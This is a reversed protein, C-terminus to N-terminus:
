AAEAYRMREETTLSPYDTYGKEDGGYFTDKDPENLPAGLEFRAVLDPNSIFPRGFCVLDIKGEAIRKEAIDQTYNNNGMYVGDFVERLKDEDFAGKDRDKWILGEVVHLYALKRKSLEGVYATFLAEPNSESIDNAGSAPSIRVGVREAGWVGVVADIVELPFRIRNEISGGYADERMNTGDQLFQDLLYGNASHVEVGDFGAARANEAAKVYDTVVRPLEDTELARPAPIDKFGNETFAQADPKVDSASVPLQGDEQLDPHSIRGVHWLQMIIKGGEEHVADVVKTWAKVQDDSYIGPTWAYGKGEKSIQTAESIILGAGARQRYYEVHMEKPTDTGDARSRTLPAMVIRNALDVPGLKFPELLANDAM